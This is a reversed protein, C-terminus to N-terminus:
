QLLIVAGTKHLLSQIQDKRESFDTRVDKVLFLLDQNMVFNNKITRYVERIIRKSRNRQVASGCNKRFTICMRSYGLDNPSYFLLLGGRHEKQGLSFLASIDSKKRIIELKTLNRKM